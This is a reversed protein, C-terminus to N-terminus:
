NRKEKFEILRVNSDILENLEKMSEARGAFSYAKCISKSKRFEKEEEEFGGKKGRSFRKLAASSRLGTIVFHAPLQKGLEALVKESFTIAESAKETEIATRSAGLLSDLAVASAMGELSIGQKKLYDRKGLEKRKLEDLQGIAKAKRELQEFFAREDGKNELAIRSLNLGIFSCIGEKETAIGNVLNWETNRCNLFTKPMTKGLLELKYKSDLAICSELVPFKEGSGAKLMANAAAAMSEREIGKGAFSDPEFLHMVNFGKVPRPHLFVAKAVRSFLLAADKAARKGAKASVAANVANTNPRWSLVKELRNAKELLSIVAEKPNEEIEAEISLGIPRTAFDQLEAIFVENGLHMRGLKSPIAKLLSYETMIAKNGYPMQEAKKEAEFVPLGLRTYQNRINEHGYELLKVNVMERILATSISEIELDKIKEEVEHGIKEAVGRPVETERLLSKIINGRDFNEILQKSTRVQMRQFSAYVAAAKPDLQQLMELAKKRLNKLSTKEEISLQKVIKTITWKDADAEGCEKAIKEILAAIPKEGM